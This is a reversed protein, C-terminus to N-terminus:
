FSLGTDSTYVDLVYSLPTPSAAQFAVSYIM